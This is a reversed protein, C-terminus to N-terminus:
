SSHCYWVFLCDTNHTTREIRSELKPECDIWHHLRQMGNHAPSPVIRVGHSLEPYDKLAQRLASSTLTYAICEESKCKATAFCRDEMALHLSNITTGCKKTDINHEVGDKYHLRMAEGKALVFM